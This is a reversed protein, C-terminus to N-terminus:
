CLEGRFDCRTCAYQARKNGMCTIDSLEAGCNPCVPHRPDSTDPESRPTPALQQEVLTLAHELATIQAKTSKVLSLLFETAEM